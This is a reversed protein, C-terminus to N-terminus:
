TDDRVGVVEVAGIVDMKLYCQPPILPSGKKKTYDGLEDIGVSQIHNPIRRRQPKLFYM